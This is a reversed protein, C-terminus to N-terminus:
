RRRTQRSEMRQGRVADSKLFALYSRIMLPTIDFFLAESAGQSCVYEVFQLIDRQYNHITHISANKELRLYLIFKDVLQDVCDLKKSVAFM